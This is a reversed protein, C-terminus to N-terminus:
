SDAGDGEMENSDEEDEGAAGDLALEAELDAREEPTMGAMPDEEFPDAFDSAFPDGGNGNSTTKSVAPVINPKAPAMGAEDGLVSSASPIAHAGEALGCGEAGDKEPASGAGEGANRRGDGGLVSSDDIPRAFDLTDINPTNSAAPIPPTGTIAIHKAL